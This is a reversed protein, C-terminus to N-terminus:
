ELYQVTVTVAGGNRTKPLIPANVFKGFLM